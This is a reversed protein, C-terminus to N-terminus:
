FTSNLTLYNGDIGKREGSYYYYTSCYLTPKAKLYALSGFFYQEITLYDSVLVIM